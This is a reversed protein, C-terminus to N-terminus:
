LMRESSRCFGYLQVVTVAVIVNRSLRSWTGCVVVSTVRYVNELEVRKNGKKRLQSQFIFQSISHLIVAMGAREREREREVYM